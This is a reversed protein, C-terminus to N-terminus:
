NQTIKEELEDLRSNLEQLKKRALEIIEISFEDDPIELELLAEVSEIVKHIGRNLSEQNMLDKAKGQDGKSNGKNTVNPKEFNGTGANGHSESNAKVPPPPPPPPNPHSKENAKALVAGLAEKFGKVTIDPDIPPSYLQFLEKIQDEGQIQLKKICSSVERLKEVGLYGYKEAGQIRSIRMYLTRTEKSLSFVQDAFDEWNGQGFKKHLEKLKCLIKGLKIRYITMVAIACHGVLSEEMNFNTALLTFFKFDNETCSETDTSLYYDVDIHLKKNFGLTVNFVTAVGQSLETLGIEDNTSLEDISTEISPEENGDTDFLEEEPVEGEEENGKEVLQAVVDEVNQEDLYMRDSDMNREMRSLREFRSIGGRFFCIFM